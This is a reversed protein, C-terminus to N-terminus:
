HTLIFALFKGTSKEGVTHSFAQNRNENRILAVDEAEAAPRLSAASKRATFPWSSSHYLQINKNGELPQMKIQVDDNEFDLNMQVQFPLQIKEKRIQGAVYRQGNFPTIFGAKGITSSAFVFQIKASVNLAQLNRIAEWKSDASFEPVTRVKFEGLTQMLTPKKYVYYFPFGTALPFAVTVQQSSYLHQCQIQQTSRAKSLFDAIKKPWQKVSREDFSHFHKRGFIKTLFQGQLQEEFKKSPIGLKKAIGEVSMYSDDNQQQRSSQDGEPHIYALLEDVSSVYAQVQRYLDQVGGLSKESSYLIGKPLSEDDGFIEAYQQDYVMSLESAVYDRIHAHSQTLSEINEEAGLIHVAAKANQALSWYEDSELNSAHYILTRVLNQVNQSPDVNSFEAMKQLTGAPLDARILQLVAMSRMEPNEGSNFYIKELIERAFRPYTRTLKDMAIVMASREFETILQAVSKDANLYKQFVGMIQPHGTNGLARILALTHAHQQQKVSEKLENDLYPLIEKEVLSQLEKRFSGFSQVPYYNYASDVDSYARRILDTFGLLVGQHVNQEKRVNENKVLKEFLYRVIEETPTRLGRALTDMVDTIESGRLKNSNIMQVLVSVSPGYGSQAIADRVTQRSLTEKTSWQSKKEWQYQEAFKEIENVNMVRILDVLIEFKELTNRKPIENQNDELDTVIENVMTHAESALNLSDLQRISRGNYGITFPHFDVEPPNVM